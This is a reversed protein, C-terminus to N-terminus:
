VVIPKGKFNGMYKLINDSSVSKTPGGFTIKKYQLRVFDLSSLGYDGNLTPIEIGVPDMRNGDEDEFGLFM